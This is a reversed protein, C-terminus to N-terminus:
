RYHLNVLLLACMLLPPSISWTALRIHLENCGRNHHISPSAIWQGVKSPNTSPSGRNTTAEMLQQQKNIPQQQNTTLSAGEALQNNCTSTTLQDGTAVGPCTMCPPCKIVRKEARTKASPRAKPQSTSSSAPFSFLPFFLIGFTKSHCDFEPM